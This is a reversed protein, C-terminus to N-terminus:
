VDPYLVPSVGPQGVGKGLLRFHEGVRDREGKEVVVENADV